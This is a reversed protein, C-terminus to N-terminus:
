RSRTGTPEIITVRLRMATGLSDAVHRATAKDSIGRVIVKYLSDTASVPVVVSVPWSLGDLRSSLDDAEEKSTYAALQLMYERGALTPKPALPKTETKPWAPASVFVTDASAKRGRIRWARLAYAASALAIVMAMIGLIVKRRRHSIDAAREDSETPVVVRPM